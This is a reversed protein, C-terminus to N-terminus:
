LISKLFAAIEKGIMTQANGADENIQMHSSNPVAIAKADAGNQKIADALGLSQPGSDARNQDYFFLWHATNPASAYTIPSLAKQTAPDNTFAAVYMDQVANDKYAMQKVVDYGAGDLLITGHIASIPVNADTLYHTDSSILSALHAGASHGMVVIRDPDFGLTAANNRLFALAAAIDKAQGDPQANPILRYNLSAFAYGLSNYFDAKEAAKHRKNGISWGGGHIFVVLPQHVSYLDKNAPAPYYDLAQAPDSGYHYESAGKRLPMKSGDGAKKGADRIKDVVITKIGDQCEPSLKQFNAKVCDKMGSMDMGCLKVVERRCDRGLRERASASTSLILATSIILAIKRM